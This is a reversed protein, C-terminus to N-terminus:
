YYVVKLIYGVRTTIFRIGYLSKIIPSSLNSDDIKYVMPQCLKKLSTLTGLPADTNTSSNLFGSIKLTNESVLGSGASGDGFSRKYVDVQIPDIMYKYTKTYVYKIYAYCQASDTTVPLVNLSAGTKSTTYTIGYNPDTKDTIKDTKVVTVKGILKKAAIETSTCLNNTPYLSTTSNQPLDALVTTPVTLSPQNGTVKLISDTTQWQTAKIAYTSTVIINKKISDVSTVPPTTTGSPAKVPDNSSCSTLVTFILVTLILQYNKM